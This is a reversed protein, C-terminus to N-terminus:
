VFTLYNISIREKSIGMKKLFRSARRARRRSIMKNPGCCVHGRVHVIWNVNTDLQEHLAQLVYQYNQSVSTNKGFYKLDHMFIFSNTDLVEVVVNSKQKQGNSFFTLLLTFYLLSSKM